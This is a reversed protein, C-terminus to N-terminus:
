MMLYKKQKLLAMNEPFVEKLSCFEEDLMDNYSHHDLYEPDDFYVQEMKEFNFGFEFALALIIPESLFFVEKKETLIKKVIKM